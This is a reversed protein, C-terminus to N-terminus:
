NQFYPNTNVVKTFVLVLINTAWSTCTTLDGTESSM